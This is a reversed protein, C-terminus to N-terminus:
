KFDYRAKIGYVNRPFAYAEANSRNRSFQAEGRISLNRSYLYTLSLDLAHYKDHRADPQAFFDAGHYDSQQYSYGALVGWKAAPSLSIAVSAGSSRPVLEPHGTRSHQDGTNLAVTFVPDWPARWLRKYVATVGRFNADRPSNDVSTSVGDSTTETTGYRFQAVQAGLALSQTDDFQHQWEVSAGAARRFTSSALTVIGYSAGVRFLDHERLMSLGATVNYTGVEFRHAESATHFRREAQGQAFLALGPQVPYNFYGGAGISEFNSTTRQSGVALPQVGFGPVFISAAAPGANVNTDRGFGVEVYGGGTPSSRGQRLKIADIYRDVAATVEPPPSSARLAEFEARARADEGLLYYGRALLLRATGDRPNLLLYRELALVGEAAHGADLAAAGFFMDFAPQGLAEPHRKGLAYADAARGAEVLAKVEDAPAAFVALHTCLASLFVAGRWIRSTIM